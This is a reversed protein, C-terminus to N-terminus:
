WDGSCRGELSSCEDGACKYVPPPSVPTSTVNEPVGVPGLYYLPDKPPIYPLVLLPCLALGVDQLVM